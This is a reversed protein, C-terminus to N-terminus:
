PIQKFYNTLQKRLEAEAFSAIKGEKLGPSIYRYLYCEVGTKRNVEKRVFELIEGGSIIHIKAPPFIM